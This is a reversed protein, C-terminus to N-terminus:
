TVTDGSVRERGSSSANYLRIAVPLFTLLEGGRSLMAQALGQKEKRLRWVTQWFKKSALRFDKGMAEGFEEWVWTKAEAVTSGEARRAERYGDTTQPSGQAL